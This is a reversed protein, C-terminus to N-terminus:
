LFKQYLGKAHKGIYQKLRDGTKIYVNPPM